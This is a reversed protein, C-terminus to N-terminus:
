VDRIAWQNGVKSEKMWFLMAISAHMIHLFFQSSYKSLILCDRDNRSANVSCSSMGQHPDPNNSIGRFDITIAIGISAEFIIAFGIGLSVKFLIAFVINNSKAISTM